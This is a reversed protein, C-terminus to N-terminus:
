ELMAIVSHYQDEGSRTYRGTLEGQNSTKPHFRDEHHKLHYKAYALPRAWAFGEEAPLSRDAGRELLFKVMEVHGRRAAFGLPTTSSHADIANIDAGFDLLCRAWGVENSAAAAHLQTRGLWDGLNVDLGHGVACRLLEVSSPCKCMEYWPGNKIRHNGVRGVYADLKEATRVRSLSTGDENVELIEDISAENFFKLLNAPENDGEDGPKAGYKLLLAVAEEPFRRGWHTCFMYCTGSSDINANPNAGAELLLRMIEVENRESAVALAAGSPSNEEPYNPDAGLELLLGVMDRLRQDAALHLPSSEDADVRNVIAPDKSAVARVTETLGAAIAAHFSPELGLDLLWRIAQPLRRAALDVVTQDDAMKRDIVCERRLEEGELWYPKIM